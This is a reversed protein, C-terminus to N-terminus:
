VYNENNRSIHNRNGLTKTQEKVLDMLISNGIFNDTVSVATSHFTLKNKQATVFRIIAVFIVIIGLITWYAVRGLVIGNM